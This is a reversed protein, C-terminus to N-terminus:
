DRPSPSTYLLCGMNRHGVFHATQTEGQGSLEMVNDGSHVDGTCYPVYIYSAEQFANRLDTRDFLPVQNYLAEGFFDQETYGNINAAMNLQYCTEYDWCGGGGELFILVRDSRDTLNVGIGTPSGDMCVAGPFDIWTWTEFPAEIPAGSPAISPAETPDSAELSALSRLDISALSSIQSAELQGATIAPRLPPNLATVPTSNLARAAPAAEIAPSGIALTLCLLTLPAPRRLRRSM